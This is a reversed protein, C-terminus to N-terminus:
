EGRAKAIVTRVRQECEELEGDGRYSSFPVSALVSELAELMEPSAAILRANSKCYTVAINEGTNEAVVLGQHNGTSAVDWPGKTHKM